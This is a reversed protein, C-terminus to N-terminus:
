AIKKREADAQTEKGSRQIANLSLESLPNKRNTLARRSEQARSFMSELFATDADRIACYLRSIQENFRRLSALNAERNSLLIDRWLTPSSEAIRTFDRFGGASFSIIESDITEEIDDIMGQYAFAVAHPLHSILSLLLDHKEASMLLVESGLAHWLAAVRATAMRDTNPLPTLIVRHGKFLGPQGNQPGSKETGAIPHGPVFHATPPILPAVTRVVEAKVSAIDTVVADVTLHPSIAGVIQPLESAPAGLVIVDAGKAAAELDTTAEDALGLDCAVAVVNASCDAAIVSGAAGLRRIDYAMSSSMAGFGLFALRRCLALRPQTTIQRVPLKYSVARDIQADVM